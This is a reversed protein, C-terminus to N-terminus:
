STHSNESQFLRALPALLPQGDHPWDIRPAQMRGPQCIRSAGLAAMQSRLSAQRNELVSLGVTSLHGAIPTLAPGLDDGDEVPYVRLFRHGPCPRWTADPEVILTWETGEGTLVTVAEGAGARLEALDRENHIQAAAASDPQSPPWREATRQFESALTTAFAKATQGADSGLVYLAAPSLCGQQDWLAVDTAIAQALGVEDHTVTESDVVLISLRHGYSVLRTNPKIRAALARLTSDPGSAVICESALFRDLCPEDHSPFSVVELATGIEEDVAQISERLLPATVPDRSSTKVLVPSGSALSLAPQLLSPMPICGAMLLSTSQFPVWQRHPTSRWQARESEIAQRLASGSWESLGLDLGAFVGELSLGSAAALSKALRRRWPSDAAQWREFVEVLVDLISEPGRARLFQRSVDLRSHAAELSEQHEDPWRIKM